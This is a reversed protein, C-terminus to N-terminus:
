HEVSAPILHTCILGSTSAGCIFFSGMLLWFDRSPASHLLTGIASSFPNGSVPLRPKSSPDTAKAGFARMGIDEPFNRIFLAVPILSLLAVIGVLIVASRWGSNVTLEALLPLFVLQGTANSATLLGVVLGRREVFWRNAVTASLWGAMAGTGLGVVLGWLLQLQWAENLFVTAAIALGLIALAALMMRRMGVREMLAAAF